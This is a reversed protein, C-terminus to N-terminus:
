ALNFNHAIASLLNSYEIIENNALKVEAAKGLYNVSKEYDLLYFYNIGLGNYITALRSNNKTTEALKAADIYYTTSKYYKSLGQYSRALAITSELAVNNLKNKSVFNYALQAYHLASDPNSEMYHKAAKLLVKAHITDNAHILEQKVSDAYYDAYTNQTAFCFLLLFSLIVWFEKNM